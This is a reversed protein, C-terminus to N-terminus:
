QIQLVLWYTVAMLSLGIVTLFVGIGTTTRMMENITILLSSANGVLGSIEEALGKQAIQATQTALSKLDRGWARTILIVVGTTFTIIGLLFMFGAMLLQINHVNYLDM